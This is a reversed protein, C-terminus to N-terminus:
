YSIIDHISAYGEELGHSAAHTALETLGGERALHWIAGMGVLMSVFAVLLLMYEVSSQGSNKWAGVMGGRAGAMDSLLIKWTTPGSM